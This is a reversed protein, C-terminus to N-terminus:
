NAKLDSHYFDSIKAYMYQSLSERDPFDIANVPELVDIKIVLDDLRLTNMVTEMWGKGAFTVETALGGKAHRYRLVAPVVRSKAIM